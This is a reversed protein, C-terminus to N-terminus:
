KIKSTIIFIGKKSRFLGTTCCSTTSSPTCELAVSTVDPTGCPVTRPGKSNRTGQEKDVDVVHWLGDRRSCSEKGIDRKDVPDDM